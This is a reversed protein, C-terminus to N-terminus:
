YYNKDFYLKSANFPPLPLNLTLTAVVAANTTEDNHSTRSNRKHHGNSKGADSESKVGNRAVLHAFGDFHRLLQPIHIPM